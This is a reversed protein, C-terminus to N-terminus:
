ATNLKYYIIKAVVMYCFWIILGILVLFIFSIDLLFYQVDNLELSDSKLHEAGGHKIIYEVWYVARDIPKMPQDKFVQSQIKATEKFKSNSLVEKIANEFSEETIEFFNVLKGYGKQEVIKM